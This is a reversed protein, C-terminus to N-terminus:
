LRQADLYVRRAVPAPSIIRLRLGQRLGRLRPRCYIRHGSPIADAWILDRGHPAQCLLSMQTAGALLDPVRHATLEIVYASSSALRIM